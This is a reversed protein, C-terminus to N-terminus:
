TEQPLQERGERLFPSYNDISNYDSTVLLGANKIEIFMGTLSKVFYYNSFSTRMNYRRFRRKSVKLLMYVYLFLTIKITNFPELQRSNFNMATENRSNELLYIFLSIEFCEVLCTDPLGILLLWTGYLDIISHIGIMPFIKLEQFNSSIPFIGLRRNVGLVEGPLNEM